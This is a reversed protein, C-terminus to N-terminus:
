SVKLILTPPNPDLYRVILSERMIGLRDTKTLLKALSKAFAKVEGDIFAVWENPNSKLLEPQIAEFREIDARFATLAKSVEEASRMQELLKKNM